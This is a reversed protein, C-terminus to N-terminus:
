PEDDGDSDDPMETKMSLNITPLHAAKLQENLAPIDKTKLDSWRATAEAQSRDLEDLTDQAIQTPRADADDVVKLVQGYQGNLQAFGTTKTGPGFGSAAGELPAAKEELAAIAATLPSGQPAKAANTKLQARLARIEELAEYTSNMAECIRVGLQYQLALDAATASVRPDIKVEFTQSLVKGNASLKAAYIGPLVPAGAPERPTDRVIASIPYEHRISQPPPNRLDWVFRHMGAATSIRQPPRIWYLPVNLEKGLEELSPGPPDQSSFERIM